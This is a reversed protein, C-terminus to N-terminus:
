TGFNKGSIHVVFIIKGIRVRNLHAGKVTYALQGITKYSFQGRATYYLENYVFFLPPAKCVNDATHPLPVLLRYVPALRNPFLAVPLVPLDSQASCDGQGIGDNRGASRRYTDCIRSSHPPERLVSLCNKGGYLPCFTTIFASKFSNLDAKEIPQNFSVDKGQGYQTYSIKHFSRVIAALEIPHTRRQPQGIPGKGTAASRRPNISDDM